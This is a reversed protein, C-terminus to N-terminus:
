RSRVLSKALGEFFAVLEDKSVPRIMRPLEEVESVMLFRHALAFRDVGADFKARVLGLLRDLDTEPGERLLFWLDVYDRAQFRTAIAQVKNVTMDRLSEVRLGEWVTPRDIPDYPYYAFDIKGYLKDATGLLLSRRPGLAQETVIAGEKTLAKTISALDATEVM